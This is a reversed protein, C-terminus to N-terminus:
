KQLPQLTLLAFISKLDFKKVADVLNSAQEKHSATPPCRHSDIYSEPSRFADASKPELSSLGRLASQQRAVALQPGDRDGDMNKAFVPPPPEPKRSTALGLEM